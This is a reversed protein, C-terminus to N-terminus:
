SLKFIVMGNEDRCIGEKWVGTYSEGVARRNRLATYTGFGEPQSFQWASSIEGVYIGRRFRIYGQSNRSERSSMTRVNKANHQVMTNNRTFENQVIRLFGM